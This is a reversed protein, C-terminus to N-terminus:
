RAVMVQSATFGIANKSYALTACTISKGKYADSIAWTASTLTATRTITSTTAWPIIWDPLYEGLASFITSVHKGDIFLSFASSTPTASYSGITCTIASETTTVVPKTGPLMPAVQARGTISGSGSAYGTRTTTATVTVSQDPRLGTVTILGTSNISAQGASSTVTYTFASDYNTIQTTFGNSTQQYNSWNPQSKARLTEINYVYLSATPDSSYNVFTFLTGNQLYLLQPVAGLQLKGQYGFGPDPLGNEDIRVIANSGANYNYSILLRGDRDMTRSQVAYSTRTLLFPSAVLYSDLLKSYGADINGQGDIKLLKTDYRDIVDGSLTKLIGDIVYISGNRYFARSYAGEKLGDSFSTGCPRNTFSDIPKGELTVANIAWQLASLDRRCESVPDSWIDKDGFLYIKDQVLIQNIQRINNGSFAIKGNGDVGFTNDISGSTRNLAFLIGQPHSMSSLILREGSLAIASLNNVGTISIVSGSSGFTSNLTGNANIKLIVPNSSQVDCGNILDSDTLDYDTSHGTAYINGTSDEVTQGFSESDLREYTFIGGVAFSTVLRGKPSVKVLIAKSRIFNCNGSDSDEWNERMNGSLLVNGDSLEIANGLSVEYEFSTIVRGADTDVNVKNVVGDGQLNATNPDFAQAPGVQVTVLAATLIGIGAKFV